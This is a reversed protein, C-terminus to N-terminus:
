PACVSRRVMASDGDRPAPAVMATDVRPDARVIRMTCLTGGGPSAGQESRASGSSSRDEPLVVRVSSGRQQVARLVSAVLGSTSRTTAAGHDRAMVLTGMLILALM